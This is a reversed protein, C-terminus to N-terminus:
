KKALIASILGYVAWFVVYIWYTEFLPIVKFVQLFGILSVIALIISTTLVFARAMMGKIYEDSTNILVYVEYMTGIIPITPMLALLINILGETKNLRFIFISAFLGIVYLFMWISFNKLYRKMQPTADAKCYM